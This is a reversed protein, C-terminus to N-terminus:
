PTSTTADASSLSAQKTLEPSPQKNWSEAREIFQTLHEILTQKDLMTKFLLPLDGHCDIIAQYCQPCAGIHVGIKRIAEVTEAKMPECVGDILPTFIALLTQINM